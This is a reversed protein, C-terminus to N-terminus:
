IRTTPRSIHYMPVPRLVVDKNALDNAMQAKSARFENIQVSVTGQNPPIDGAIFHSTWGIVEVAFEPSVWKALHIADRPNVWTGDGLTALFARTYKNVNGTKLKCMATADMFGDSSRQRIDIGKFTNTVSM